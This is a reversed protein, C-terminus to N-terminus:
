IENFKEIAIELNELFFIDCGNNCEYIFDKLAKSTYCSFDGIIAVKVGYNIFKQLIEGAIGTKLDFFSEIISVKKIIIKNSNTEYQVSMMLDLASHVDNILIEDSEIFTIDNDMGYIKLEM